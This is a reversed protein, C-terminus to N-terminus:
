KRLEESVFMDIYIIHACRLYNFIDVYAACFYHM